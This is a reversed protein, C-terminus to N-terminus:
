RRRRKGVTFTMRVRKGPRARVRSRRSGRARGVKRSPKAQSAKAQSAKAEGKVAEGKVAEGKVTAGKGPGKARGKAAGASAAAEESSGKIDGPREPELSKVKSTPGFKALCQNYADAAQIKECDAITAQSHAATTSALGLVFAGVFGCTLHHM